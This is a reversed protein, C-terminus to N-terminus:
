RRGEKIQWGQGAAAKSLMWSLSAHKMDAPWPLAHLPHVNM